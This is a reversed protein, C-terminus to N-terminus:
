KTKKDENKNFHVQSYKILFTVQFLKITKKKLRKINFYDVIVTATAVPKKDSFIKSLPSIFSLLDCRYTLM